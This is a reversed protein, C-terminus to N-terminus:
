QASSFSRSLNQPDIELNVLGYSRSFFQELLEIKVRAANGSYLMQRLVM